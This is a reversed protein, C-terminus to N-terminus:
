EGGSIRIPLVLCLYDSGDLARFVAPSRSGGFEVAVQEGQIAKLVDLLYRANFLMEKREGEVSASLEEQMRGVESSFSSISLTNGEAVLKIINSRIKADEQALLAAREVAHQFARSDVLVRTEWGQPILPQYSPFQGDILRSNIHIDGGKFAAQSDGLEMTVTGTSILRAVEQVARAPLLVQVGERGLIEGGITNLALRHTDTAVLRLGGDDLSEFLIGTFIRRSEDNSAAIAVRGVAQRLAEADVRLAHPKEGAPLSPFQDPDFGNLEVEARQYTMRVAQSGTPCSIEIEGDPLRRVLEAFYRVPLCVRGGENVAVPFRVTISLELDTGSLSLYGDRAELLVSSLIPLPNRPSIARQVANVAALLQPQGCCFQM